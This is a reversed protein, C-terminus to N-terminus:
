GPRRRNLMVGTVILGSGSVVLILIVIVLPDGLGFASDQTPNLGSGTEPRNPEPRNPEPRNPEAQPERAAMDQTLAGAQEEAISAQRAPTASPEATAPAVAAAIVAATEVPRVPQGAETPQVAPEADPPRIILKDGPHIFAYPPLENLKLLEEIPVKYLASINWLAQGELVTHIISGDAAPTAAQLLPGGAGVAGASGTVGSPQAASPADEANGEGAAQSTVSGVVLTYYTMGGAAAVGAGADTATASLMTNLHLGDGQWMRVAEQASMDTGGAINESVSVAAGGGYGAAVARDVPRSGGPGSHTITGSAAQFESQAQAISMLFPDSRLAPLGNARRLANVASILESSSSAPASASVPLPRLWAVLVVLLLLAPFVDLIYSRAPLSRM